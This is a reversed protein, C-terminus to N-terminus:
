NDQNKKVVDKYVSDFVSETDAQSMHHQTVLATTLRSGLALKLAAKDQKPKKNMSTGGSSKKVEQKCKMLAATKDTKNKAWKNRNHPSPMYLGKISSNNSSHKSCWEYKREKHEIMNRKKRVQWKPCCTKTQGKGGGNSKNSGMKRAGKPKDQNFSVKKALDGFKKKVEQLASTLAVIKTDKENMNLWTGDAVM